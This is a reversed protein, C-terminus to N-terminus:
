GNTRKHTQVWSQVRQRNEPPLTFTRNGDADRAEIYDTQIKDHPTRSLVFTQRTLDSHRAHRVSVSPPLQLDRAVAAELDRIAYGQRGSMLEIATPGAPSQARDTSACGLALIVISLGALSKIM